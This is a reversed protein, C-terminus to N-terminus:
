PQHVFDNDALLPVADNSQQLPALLWEKDSSALAHFQVALQPTAAQVDARNLIENRSWERTAQIVMCMSVVPPPTCAQLKSQVWSGTLNGGFNTICCVAHTRDPYRQMVDAMHAMLGREQQEEGGVIQSIAVVYLQLRSVRIVTMIDTPSTQSGGGPDVITWTSALLGRWTQSLHPDHMLRTRAVNRAQMRWHKSVRSIQLLLRKSDVFRLISFLADNYLMIRDGLQIKHPQTLRHCFFTPLFLKKQFRLQSHSFIPRFVEL